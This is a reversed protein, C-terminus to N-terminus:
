TDNGLEEARRDLRVLFLRTHVVTGYSASFSKFVLLSSPSKLLSNDLKNDM